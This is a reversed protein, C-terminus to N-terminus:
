QGGKKAASGDRKEIAKRKEQPLSEYMEKVHKPRSIMIEVILNVLIFLKQATAGDDKLDMMGPHVCENGIVRVIDLSQQVKEDLGKKVLAAIDDNINKGPEGLHVCLKQIALRLLAAAGRTSLDIIASAEDYDDRIDDPLDPNALAVNGRRPWVLRDHIWIAIDGCNYCKSVSVNELSADPYISGSRPEIFPRGTALRDLLKELHERLEPDLDDKIEFGSKDHPVIRPTKNSGFADAYTGYWVQTTLADCHPCNFATEGTSPAVYKGGATM